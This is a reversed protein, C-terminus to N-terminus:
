LGKTPPEFGGAAVMRGTEYWRMSVVLGSPVAPKKNGGAIFCPRSLQLDFCDPAHHRGRWAAGTFCWFGLSGGAMGDVAMVSVAMVFAIFSALAVLFRIM